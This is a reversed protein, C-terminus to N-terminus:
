ESAWAGHFCLPCRKYRKVSPGHCFGQPEGQDEEDNWHGQCNTHILGLIFHLCLVVKSGNIDRIGIHLLTNPKGHFFVVLFTLVFIDEKHVLYEMGFKLYSLEIEEAYECITVFTSSLNHFYVSSVFPSLVIRFTHSAICLGVSVFAIYVCASGICATSM